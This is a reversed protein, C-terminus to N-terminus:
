KAASKSKAKSKTTSWFAKCDASLGAEHQALCQLLRGGGEQVQACFQDLDPKCASQVAQAKDTLSAQCAQSVKDSKQELCILVAGHAPKVKSCLKKVDAACPKPASTDAFAVGTVLLVVAGLLTSQVKTSQLM